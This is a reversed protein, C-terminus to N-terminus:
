GKRIDEGAMESAMETGLKGLHLKTIKRTASASETPM